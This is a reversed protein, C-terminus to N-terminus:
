MSKALFSAFEKRLEEFMKGFTAVKDRLDSEDEIKRHDVATPNANINNELEKERRNVEHSLIDIQERQIILQNQFHEVSTLLEKGTNKRAIEELRSTMVKVEDKYFALTNLWDKHDQHLDYIKKTAEM